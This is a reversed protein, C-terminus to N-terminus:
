DDVQSEIAGKRKLWNAFWYTLKPLGDCSDLMMRLSDLESETANMKMRGDANEVWISVVPNVELQFVKFSTM